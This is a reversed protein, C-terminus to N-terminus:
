QKGCASCDMEIVSVTYPKDFKNGDLNLDINSVYIKGNRLCVESPKDLHGGAGTGNGNQAITVVKGTAPNM